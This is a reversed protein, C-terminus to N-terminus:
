FNSNSKARLEKLKHLLVKKDIFTKITKHKEAAPFAGVALPPICSRGRECSSNDKGEESEDQRIDHIEEEKDGEKKEGKMGGRLECDKLFREEVEKWEAGDM